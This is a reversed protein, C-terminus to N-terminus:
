SLKELAAQRRACGLAVSVDIGNQMAASTVTMEWLLQEDGSAIAMIATSIHKCLNRLEALSINHERLVEISFPDRGDEISQAVVILLDKMRQNM